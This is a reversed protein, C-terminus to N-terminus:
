TRSRRGRRRGRRSSAPRFRWSARPAPLDHDGRRDFGPISGEATRLTEAIESEPIGFLRLMREEYTTRAAVADQFAQTAVAQPWMSHLERPPGPMVVVTPGGRGDPPPVVLGPATGAPDIATAGRPVLAQKRNAAMVADEDLHQFRTM